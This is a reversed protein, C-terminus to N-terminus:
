IKALKEPSVIIIQEDVIVEIQAVRVFAFSLLTKETIQGKLPLTFEDPFPFLTFPWARCLKIEAEFLVAVRASSKYRWFCSSTSTCQYWFKQEVSVPLSSDSLKRRARNQESSAVIDEPLYGWSPKGLQPLLTREKSNKTRTRPRFNRTILGHKLVTQAIQEVLM